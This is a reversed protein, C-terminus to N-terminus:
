PLAARVQLKVEEKDKDSELAQSDRARFSAAMHPDLTSSRMAALADQAVDALSSSSNKRLIRQMLMNVQDYLSEMIYYADALAVGRMRSDAVATECTLLGWASLMRTITFSLDSIDRYNM